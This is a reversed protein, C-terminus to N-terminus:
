LNKLSGIKQPLPLFRPPTRDRSITSLSRASNRLRHLPSRGGPLLLGRSLKAAVYIVRLSGPILPRDATKDIPARSEQSAREVRRFFHPGNAPPGRWYSGGTPHLLRGLLRRLPRRPVKALDLSTGIQDREDFSGVYYLPRLKDRRMGAGRQLPKPM